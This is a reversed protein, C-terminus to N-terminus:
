NSFSEAISLFQYKEEEYWDSQGLYAGAVRSFFDLFQNGSKKEAFASMDYPACFLLVGLITKSDM